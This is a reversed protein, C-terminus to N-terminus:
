ETGKGKLKTDLNLIRRVERNLDNKIFRDLGSMRGKSPSYKYYDTKQLIDRFVLKEMDNLSKATNYSKDTIVKQIGQTINYKRDNIEVETGRLMEIPYIKLMCGREPNEHTKFVM